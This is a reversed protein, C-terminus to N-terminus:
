VRSTRARRVASSDGRGAGVPTFVVPRPSRSKGQPAGAVTPAPGGCWGHFATQTARVPGGVPTAPVYM